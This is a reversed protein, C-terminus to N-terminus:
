EEKDLIFEYETIGLEKAYQSTIPLVQKKLVKVRSEVSGYTTLAVSNNAHGFFFNEIVFEVGAERLYDSLAHRLSHSTLKSDTTVKRIANAITWTANSVTFSFYYEGDVKPPDFPIPITRRSSKNKISRKENSEIKVSGNAIDSSKLGAIEGIRAGTVAVIDWLVRWEGKLSNRVENIIDKPMPDKRTIEDEKDEVQLGEFPNSIKAQKKDIYHSFMASLMRLYTNTTIPKLTASIKDSYEIAMDRTFHGDGYKAIIEEWPKTYKVYRKKDESKSKVYLSLIDDWVISQKQEPKVAQLIPLERAKNERMKAARIRAENLSHAARKLLDVQGSLDALKHASEITFLRQKGGYVAIFVWSAGGGRVLLYLCGGDSLRTVTANGAKDFSGNKLAAAVQSPTLKHLVRQKRAM